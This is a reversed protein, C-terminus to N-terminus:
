LLLPAREEKKCGRGGSKEGRKVLFVSIFGYRVALVAAIPIAANM